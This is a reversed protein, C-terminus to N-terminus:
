RGLTVRAPPPRFDDPAPLPGIVRTSGDVGTFAHASDTLCQGPQRDRATRWDWCRRAAGTLADAVPPRDPYWRSTVVDFLGVGPRL